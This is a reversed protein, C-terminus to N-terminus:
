HRRYVAIQWPGSTRSFHRVLGAQGVLRDIEEPSRVSAHVPGRWVLFNMVRVVARVALTDRPFVLGYQRHARGASVAILRKWDPYVNIVRDLTVIDAPPVADALDLFDGCYYTVRGTFGQRKSEQRATQIYADSADVSTVHAAGASLLEHQVAGIGGGIDIATAGAIDETKLADILMKTSPIPGRKHYSRLESAAKRANYFSGFDRTTPVGDDAGTARDDPQAELL